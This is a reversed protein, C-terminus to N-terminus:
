ANDLFHVAENYEFPGVANRGKQMDSRMQQLLKQTRANPVPYDSFVVRKERVFERLYANIVTGLLLGLERAVKQAQQKLKKETKVNLLIRNM